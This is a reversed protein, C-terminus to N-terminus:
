LVAADHGRNTEERELCRVARPVLGLALMIAWKAMAHDLSVRGMEYVVDLVFTALGLWLFTQLRLGIGLFIGVLSAVLLALWAGFSAFQWIPVALSAYIILLGASRISNVTSRGLEHRQSEAFLITSFGVPVMFFQFHDKLEWGFISWLVWLAANYFVGAAYGLSKWRLQGCAVSYFTAAAVLHFLGVEKTGGIWLLQFCRCSRCCSHASGFRAPM